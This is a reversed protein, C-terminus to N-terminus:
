SLDLLGEPLAVHVTKANKDVKPILADNVPVLVERGQYLFALLDQPGETFVRTVQGLKGKQGDVVEFGIIEHYYYDGEELEPLFSLPLYIKKGKLKEADELRDIDELKVVMRKNHFFADELFFPVLEDKIEVFFAELDFYEAPDDVDLMVCLEGKLGHTKTIIGLEFCDQKKM